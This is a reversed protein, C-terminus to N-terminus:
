ILEYEISNEEAYKQAASDAVCRIILKESCGMFADPGFEEVTERITVSELNVCDAFAAIGVTKVTQPMEFAKSDNGLPYQVIETKDKNYLAGNKDASYNKNSEDVVIKKLDSSWSLATGGMQTEIVEVTDPIYIEQAMNLGELSYAGIYTIGSLIKVTRVSSGFEDWFDLSIDGADWLAGSGTITVTKEGSDYSYFANDGCKGTATPANTKEETQQETAQTQKAIEVTPVDNAKNMEFFLVTGVALLAVIVIVVAVAGLGSSKKEKGM